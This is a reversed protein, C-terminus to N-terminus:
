DEDDEEDEDKSKKSKKSKSKKAKPEDEDDEEDEDFDLDSDDDEDEDKSKSKKSKKSKSKKSKAKQEDEEEDDEEDDDDNDEDDNDKSKKSKSKPEDEEDDEDKSKKSKKAKAKPEDEEDDEEDDEEEDDKSKKGNFSEDWKEYNKNATKLDEPEMLTEIDWLLCEQEDETLPSKDGKQITYKKASTKENPDFMISIDCGYKPHSLPFVKKDGDKNKHLNLSGLKKLERVVSSSVRFVRAPTWAKSGKEKFGSKDEATTPKGKKSPEDEQLSRVIVNTYFDKGFSVSTGHDHDCWPCPKTSDHEETDRDFSLCPKPFKTLTKKDKRLTEMWHVGYAITPGVFRLSVWENPPLKLIDVLEDVKPARSDLSKSDELNKDSKFKAKM